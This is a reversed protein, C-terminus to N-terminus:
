GLSYGRNTSDNVCANTVLLTLKPIKMSSMRDLFHTDRAAGLSQRRTCAHVHTDRLAGTRRERLLYLCAHCIADRMPPIRMALDPEIKCADIIPVPILVTLLEIAEEGEGEHCIRPRHYPGPRQLRMSVTAHTALMSSRLIKHTFFHFLRPQLSCNGTIHFM